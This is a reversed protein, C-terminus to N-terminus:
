KYIPWTSVDVCACVPDNLCMSTHKYTGAGHAQSEATRYISITRPVKPSLPFNRAEAAISHIYTNVLLYTYPYLYPYTFAQPIRYQYLVDYELQLAILICCLYVCV